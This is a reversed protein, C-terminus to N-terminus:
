SKDELKSWYAAREPFIRRVGGRPDAQDGTFRPILHVHLHPVTQGAALGENIGINYGNPRYEHDIQNRALLLLEFLERIENTELDAISQV